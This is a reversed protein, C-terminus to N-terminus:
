FKLDKQSKLLKGVTLLNYKMEFIPRNVLVGILFISYVDTYAIGVFFLMVVLCLRKLVKFLNLRRMSGM